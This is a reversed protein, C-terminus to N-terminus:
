TLPLTSMVTMTQGEIIENPGASIWTSGTVGLSM